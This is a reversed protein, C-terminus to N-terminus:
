LTFLHQALRIAALQSMCLCPRQSLRVTPVQRFDEIAQAPTDATGAVSLARLAHPTLHPAMPRSSPPHPVSAARVPQHGPGKPGTRPPKPRSAATGQPCCEEEENAVAAPEDKPEAKPESIDVSGEVKASRQPRRPRATAAAHTSSTDAAPAEAALAAENPNDKQTQSQSSTDQDMGWSNQLLSSLLSWLVSPVFLNSGSMLPWGCFSLVNLQHTMLSPSDNMVRGNGAKTVRFLHICCFVCTLFGCNNCEKELAKPSFYLLCTCLFLKDGKKSTDLSKRGTRWYGPLHENLESRSLDGWGSSVRPCAACNLVVLWCDAHFLCCLCLSSCLFLFPLDSDIWGTLLYICQIDAASLVVTNFSCCATWSMFVRREAPYLMM